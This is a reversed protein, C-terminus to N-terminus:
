AAEAAVTLFEVRESCQPCSVVIQSESLAKSQLRVSVTGAVV